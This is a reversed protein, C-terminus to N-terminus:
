SQLLKEKLERGAAKDLTVHKDKARSLEKDLENRVEDIAAAFSMEMAEARFLEGDVTLNTEVRYIRGNQHATQKEFEVECHASATEGIFRELSTFKQEVVDALSKAEELGNFKFTITPFSM